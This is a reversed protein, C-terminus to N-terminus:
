SCNETRLQQGTGTRVSFQSGPVSFQQKGEEEFFERDLYQYLLSRIELPTFAVGAVARLSIM